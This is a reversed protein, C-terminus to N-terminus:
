RLDISLKQSNLPREKRRADQSFNILVLIFLIMSMGFSYFSLDIGFIRPRNSWASEREAIAQEKQNLKNEKDSLEKAVESYLNSSVGITVGVASLLTQTSHRFSTPTTTAAFYMFLLASLALGSANIYGVRKQM